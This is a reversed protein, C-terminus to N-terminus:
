HQCKICLQELKRMSELWRCCVASTSTFQLNSEFCACMRPLGEHMPMHHMMMLM